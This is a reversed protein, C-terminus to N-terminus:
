TTKGVQQFANQFDNRALQRSGRKRSSARGPIWPNLSKQIGAKAPIVMSVVDPAM